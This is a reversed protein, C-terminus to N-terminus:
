SDLLIQFKLSQTRERYVVSFVPFCALNRKNMGRPEGESAEGDKCAGQFKLQTQDSSSLSLYPSFFFTLNHYNSCLCWIRNTDAHIDVVRALCDKWLMRESNMVWGMEGELSSETTSIAGWPIPLKRFLM